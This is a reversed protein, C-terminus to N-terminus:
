GHWVVKHAEVRCVVRVNSTGDDWPYRELGRYKAALADILARGGHESMTVRGRAELYRYPNAADLVLVSVRPDRAMNDAKRRGLVTSFVLTDDERAIWVVSTHPSGDPELTALTAFSLGDVAARAADPLPLSTVGRAV